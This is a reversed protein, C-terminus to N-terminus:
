YFTNLTFKHYLYNINQQLSHPNMKSLLQQKMAIAAASQEGNTNRECQYNIEDVNPVIASFSIAVWELIRTISGHFSSDWPFPAVTWSGHLTPCSQLSQAHMCAYTNHCCSYLLYVVVLLLSIRMYKGICSGNRINKIGKYLNLYSDPIM